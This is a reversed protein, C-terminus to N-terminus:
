FKRNAHIHLEGDPLSAANKMEILIRAPESTYNFVQHEVGPPILLRSEDTLLTPEGNMVVVLNGGGLHEYDEWIGPPHTHRSTSSYDTSLRRPPIVAGFFVSSGIRVRELVYLSDSGRHVLPPIHLKLKGQSGLAGRRRLARHFVTDTELWLQAEGSTCLKREAIVM